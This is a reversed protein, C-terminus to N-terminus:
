DEKRHKAWGTPEPPLAVQELPLLGQHPGGFRLACVPCCAIHANGWPTVQDTMSPHRIAQHPWPPPPVYVDPQTGRGKPKKSM